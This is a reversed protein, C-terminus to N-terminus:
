QQQEIQERLQPLLQDLQQDAEGSLLVGLGLIVLAVVLVFLVTTIVGLVVGATALGRHRSTEGRAVRRRGMVGLVIAPIALVGLLFTTLFGILGALGLALAAVAVGNGPDGAPGHGAPAGAYPAEWPEQAGGAHPSAPDHDGPYPSRPPQAEM